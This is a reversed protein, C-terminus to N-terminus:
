KPQFHLIHFIKGPVFPVPKGERWFKQQDRYHKSFPNGSQGGPMELIGNEPHAPALVFRESAGHEKSMVKVCVSACGSSEFEAFDLFEGLIPLGKSFPHRQTVKNVTGWKLQAPETGPYDSQLGQVASNLTELIFLQWNDHYQTPLVGSPRQTLLERLPTEM